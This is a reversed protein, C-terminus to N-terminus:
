PLLRDYVRVTAPSLLALAGRPLPMLQWLGIAFLGALCLLVPCRPLALRWELLIRVAWLGLLAAVGLYLAFEFFPDAAGFLWPSVGVLLLVIGEMAARVLGVARPLSPPRPAGVPPAQPASVPTM